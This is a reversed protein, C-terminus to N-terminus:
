CVAVSTPYVKHYHATYSHTSHKKGGYWRGLDGLLRSEFGRRWNGVRGGKRRMWTSDPPKASADRITRTSFKVPMAPAQVAYLPM